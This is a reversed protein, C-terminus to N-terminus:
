RGQLAAACLWAAAAWLLLLIVYARPTLPPIELDSRMAQGGNLMLATLPVFVIFNALVALVGAALCIQWGFALAPSSAAAVFPLGLM